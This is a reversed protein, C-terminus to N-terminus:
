SLQGVQRNTAILETLQVVTLWPRSRHIMRHCNACVLALDALRTLTEGSVHLPVRHHVEIYDQGLAGYTDGFVIQCAECELAGGAALVSAKKRRVLKRDRERARHLRFLVRGEPVEDEDEDPIGAAVPAAVVGSEILAALESVREAQGEFESWVDAAGQGGRNMGGGTYSPDVAAFNALKLAVGAGNRFRDIDPRLTHIPLANLVDSVRLVEPHDQGLMGRRLYLDLALILEDRVWNPNRPM